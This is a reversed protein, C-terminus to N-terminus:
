AAHFQFGPLAQLPFLQVATAPCPPPPFDRSKYFRNGFSFQKAGIYNLLSVGIAFNFSQGRATAATCHQLRTSLRAASPKQTACCLICGGRYLELM